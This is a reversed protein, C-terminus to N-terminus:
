MHRKFRVCLVHATKPTRNQPSHPSNGFMPPVSSPRVPVLFLPPISRSAEVEHKNIPEISLGSRSAMPDRDCCHGPGHSRRRTTRCRQRRGDRRGAWDLAMRDIMQLILLLLGDFLVLLVFARPLRSCRITQRIELLISLTTKIATARGGTGNSNVMVLEGANHIRARRGTWTGPASGCTRSARHPCRWVLKSPLHHIRCHM